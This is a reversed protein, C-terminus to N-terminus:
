RRNHHHPRPLSSACWLTKHSSFLARVKGAPVDVPTGAALLLRVADVASPAASAAAFHLARWGRSDAATVKAGASLLASLCERSAAGAAAAM